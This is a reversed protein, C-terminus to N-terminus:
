LPLQRKSKLLARQAVRSQKRRQIWGHKTHAEQLYALEKQLKTFREYRDRPLSGKALADLVACRSEVTHSCSPFHCQLALEELDSFAERMGENAIWMQFERMGPTDIVLGGQPLLILERWTTTHRGKADRERVEATAQIEEGCLDNILSSKGVGSSGIFVVTKGPTIRRALENLGDGTKASVVVVPGAQTAAQAELVKEPITDCLDAKNLVVVGEAGSELVMVWHRQLLAANFTSDLAQVVFGTDINTALVQEETERGPVKRSLKTQRPLVQHIIVKTESPLRAFAVWDGVKPLAALTKAQHLLKGAVQGTLEGQPTVLVYYHKDEVAVRGPELGKQRVAAFSQQFADNWGLSEWTLEVDPM